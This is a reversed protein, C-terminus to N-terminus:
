RHFRSSQSSPVQAKCTSCREVGCFLALLLRQVLKDADGGRYLTGRDISHVGEDTMRQSKSERFPGESRKRDRQIKRRARPAM